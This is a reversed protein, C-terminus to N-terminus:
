GTNLNSDPFCGAGKKETVQGERNYRCPTGGTKGHLLLDLEPLFAGGIVKM